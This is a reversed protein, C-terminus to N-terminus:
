FYFVFVGFVVVLRKYPTLQEDSVKISVALIYYSVETNSLFYSKEHNNNQNNTYIHGSDQPWYSLGVDIGSFYIFNFSTHRHTHIYSLIDNAM